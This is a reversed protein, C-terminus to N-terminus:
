ISVLSTRPLIQLSVGELEKQEEEKATKRRKETEWTIKLSFIFILLPLFPHFFQLFITVDLIGTICLPFAM